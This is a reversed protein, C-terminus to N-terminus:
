AHVLFLVVLLTQRLRRSRPSALGGGGAGVVPVALKMRKAAPQEPVGREREMEGWRGGGEERRKRVGESRAEKPPTTMPEHRSTGRMLGLNIPLCFRTPALNTM